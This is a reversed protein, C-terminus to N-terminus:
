STQTDALKSSNASLIHTLLIHLSASNLGMPKLIFFKDTWGDTWVSNDPCRVRNSSFDCFDDM